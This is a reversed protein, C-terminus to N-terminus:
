AAKRKQPRPVVPTPEPPQAPVIWGLSLMSRFTPWARAEDGDVITGPMIGNGIRLRLKVLYFPASEAAFQRRARM